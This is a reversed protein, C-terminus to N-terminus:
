SMLPIMFSKRILSKLSFQEAIQPYENLVDNIWESDLVNFEFPLKQYAVSLFERNTQDLSSFSLFIFRKIKYQQYTRLGDKLISDLVSESYTQRYQIEVVSSISEDVEEILSIPGIKLLLDSEKFAAGFAANLLRAGLKILFEETYGTINYISNSPGKM